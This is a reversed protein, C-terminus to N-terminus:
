EPISKSDISAVLSPYFHSYYFMSTYLLAFIIKRVWWRGSKQWKTDNTNIQIYLKEEFGGKKQFWKTGYQSTMM